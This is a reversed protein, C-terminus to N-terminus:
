FRYYGYPDPKPPNPYTPSQELVTTKAWAPLTNWFSYEKENLRRNQRLDPKGFAIQWEEKTGIVIHKGDEFVPQGLSDLKYIPVLELYVWQIGRPYHYYGGAKKTYNGWECKWQRTRGHKKKGKGVPTFWFFKNGVQGVIRGALWNAIKVTDFKESKPHRPRLTKERLVGEVDVYFDHRFYSTTDDPDYKQGYKYDPGTSVQSLLHDYVIHRGATTRTDFTTAVESRVEDWPRGVRSSLWRYVPSLKDSFEKYVHVKEEIEYEDYGEPDVEVKNLYDRESARETDHSHRREWKNRGNRGGEIVTKQLRKTSM